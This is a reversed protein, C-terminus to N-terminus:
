FDLMEEVLFAKAESYFFFFTCQQKKNDDKNDQFLLSSELIFRELQESCWSGIQFWIRSSSNSEILNTKNKKVQSTKEFYKVARKSWCM